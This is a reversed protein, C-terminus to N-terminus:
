EMLMLLFIIEQRLGNLARIEALLPITRIVLGEQLYSQIREGSNMYAHWVAEYCSAFSPVQTTLTKNQGPNYGYWSDHTIDRNRLSQTYNLMKKKAYALAYINEKGNPDIYVVPNNACYM